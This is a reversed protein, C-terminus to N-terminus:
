QTSDSYTGGYTRELRERGNREQKRKRREMAEKRGTGGEMGNPVYLGYCSQHSCLCATPSAPTKALFLRITNSTKGQICQAKAFDKFDKLASSIMGMPIKDLLFEVRMIILTLFRSFYVM